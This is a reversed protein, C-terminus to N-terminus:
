DRFLRKYKWYYLCFIGFYFIILLASLQWCKDILLISAFVLFGLIGLHIRSIKKLVKRALKDELHFKNWSWYFLMFFHVWASCPWVIITGLIAPGVGYKPIFEILTGLANLSALGICWLFDSVLRKNGPWYELKEKM